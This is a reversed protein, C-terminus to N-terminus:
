LEDRKRMGAGLPRLRFLRIGHMEVEATLTGMPAISGIRKGLLAAHNMRVGDAYSMETSNYRMTGNAADMVVGSATGNGNLVAQASEVSARNGWLDYVDWGIRVQPAVGAANTSSQVVFMEALSANMTVVGEGTNVFAVVWDGGALEGVWCSLSGQGYVDLQMAPYEYVRYASMGLVDQGVALVAPNAYVSWSRATMNRVDTGMILPSKLIAWMSFHLVYDADTM